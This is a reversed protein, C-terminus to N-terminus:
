QVRRSAYRVLHHYTEPLGIGDQVTVDRLAKALFVDATGLARAIAGTRHAARAVQALFRRDPARQRLPAFLRHRASVPLAQVVYIVPLSLSGKDLDSRLTKGMLRQQGILDLCDDLIQFAMGFHWGFRTLREVTSRPAGAVHAGLHCCAAILSATKDQIIRLYDAQSLEVNFRQEVEQMEGRSLRQCVEAMYATAYPDRLKTLISFALSYLYDGTLVARETGFRRHFTPQQRRLSAGDIIDDHILTATHILEVTAGLDLLATRARRFRGSHGALLVLAPRLRKGGATVMYLTRKAVPHRLYGALRQTARTLDSEIPQLIQKLAHPAVSM